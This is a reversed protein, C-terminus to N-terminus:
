LVTSTSVSIKTDHVTWTYHFISSRGIDKWGNLFMSSGMRLKQDRLFLNCSASKEQALETAGASLLCRVTDGNGLHSPQNKAYLFLALVPAINPSLADWDWIEGRIPIGPLFVLDLDQFCLWYHINREFGWKWVTLTRIATKWEKVNLETYCGVRTSSISYHKLTFLYALLWKFSRERRM